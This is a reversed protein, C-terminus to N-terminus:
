SNINWEVDYIPEQPASCSATTEDWSNMACVWQAMSKRYNLKKCIAMTDLGRPSIARWKGCSPNCCKIWEVDGKKRRGRTAAASTLKSEARDASKIRKLWIKFFSQLKYDNNYKEELADCTNHTPDYM